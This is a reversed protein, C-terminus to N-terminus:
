IIYRREVNNFVVFGALPALTTPTPPPPHRLGGQIKPVFILPSPQVGRIKLINKKLNLM